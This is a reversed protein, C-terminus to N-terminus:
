TTRGRVVEGAKMVFAVDEFREIGETGDGEVAVVDAYKGPELSGIRDDWGLLEAAVVTASQLAQIPTMGFRVMYALQRANMGHPYIGSDTGYAIKLGAKVAKRFGERQAHTTEDNKRLIEDPWGHARGVEAIWDGDYVDPVLYTGREGM